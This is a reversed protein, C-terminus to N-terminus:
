IHQLTWHLANLADSLHRGWHIIFHERWVRVAEERKLATGERYLDLGRRLDWYVEVLDFSISWDTAEKDLFPDFVQYYLDHNGLKKRLGRESVTRIRLVPKSSKIIRMEEGEPLNWAQYYLRPILDVLAYILDRKCKRQYNELLDCYEEALRVFTRVSKRPPNKRPNFSKKM